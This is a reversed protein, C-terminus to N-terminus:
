QYHSAHCVDRGNWSILSQIWKALIASFEASHELFKLMRAYWKKHQQTASLITSAILHEKKAGLIILEKLDNVQIMHWMLEFALSRKLQSLFNSNKHIVKYASGTWEWSGEVSHYVGRSSWQKIPKSQM